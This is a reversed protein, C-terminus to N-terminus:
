LRQLHKNYPKFFALFERPSVKCELEGMKIGSKVSLCCLLHSLYVKTFRGNPFRIKVLPVCKIERELYEVISLESLEHVWIDIDELDRPLLGFEISTFPLKVRVLGLLFDLYSYPQYIEM